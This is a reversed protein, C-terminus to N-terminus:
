RLINLHSEVYDTFVSIDDTFVVLCTQSVTINFKLHHFVTLLQLIELFESPFLPWVTSAIPLSSVM